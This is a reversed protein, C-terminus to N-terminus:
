GRAVESTPEAAMARARLLREIEAMILAGAKVLERVRDDPSPKWWSPDWDLPWANPLRVGEPKVWPAAYAAAADALEGATHTDDHEPTYGEGGIQRARETAVLHIAVEALHVHTDRVPPQGVAASLAAVITDGQGDGTEAEGPIRGWAYAIGDENAWLALPGRAGIERSLPGDEVLVLV